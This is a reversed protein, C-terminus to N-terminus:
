GKRSRLAGYITKLEGRAFLLAAVSFTSIGVVVAGFVHLALMGKSLTAYPLWTTYLWLAGAMVLAAIGFRLVIQLHKLFQVEVGKRYLLVFALITSLIASLSNSLAIGGHKLPGSLTYCGVVNVVMSALAIWMPTRTNKMAYFAQNLSRSMAIFYIGISHFLVAYATIDTSHSDFEGQQFLLSVIPRRLILLGATAPLTILALLTMSFRNMEGFAGKNGSAHQRSLTPLIVTTISVVFVGLVLEQLRISYQLSAVSGPDLSSAIMQSVFVNVQYIGAAFAGPIFIRILEKVGPHAWNLSFSLRIGTRYLWPLQFGLQLVGGVLFGLAFAYSPNEFSDHFLAACGIIALNLLVPTFASPAFLKFSNLVAQAIAALSVLFLYPFMIQTLVITLAVKGPVEGFGEAFFTSILWNSLLIGLICVTTVIFTFLTLFSSLFANLKHRNEKKLYDAFVPVFASTMAGEALLRRFLNPISSALGFADSGMGTGLYYGRIQERVLGLIRSLFTLATMVVASRFM